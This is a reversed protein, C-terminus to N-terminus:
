GARARVVCPEGGEAEEAREARGLETGGDAGEAEAEEVVDGLARRARGRGVVRAPGLRALRDQQMGKPLLQPVRAHM